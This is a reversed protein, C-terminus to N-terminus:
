RQTGILRDLQKQDGPKYSPAPAAPLPAEARPPEPKASDPKAPEPKATNPAASNATPQPLARMAKQAEAAPNLTRVADDIAETSKIKLSEPMFGRLMEAGEHLYPASKAERIWQPRDGQQPVSVDLLLFALCVIFAGRALGFIFGL